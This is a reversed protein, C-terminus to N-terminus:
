LSVSPKFLGPLEKSARVYDEPIGIDIFYGDSIYYTIYDASVQKELIDKEFSFKKGPASEYLWDKRLIYIGGNILGEECFKKESFSIIRDGDTVVAGYREFNMMPKLALMSGTKSKLFMEEMRGFDVEFFTDGNIVFFYDSEVSGTAEFIAGGTGLPEKEVSYVLKIGKYSSGFYSEIVEYKYGAALIIKDFKYRNLQELLYCLFPLNNILAMPKPLEAVLSKLRTGFGGSLIVAERKM